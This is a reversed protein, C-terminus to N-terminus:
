NSLHPTLPPLHPHGPMSPDSLVFNQQSHILSEMLRFDPEMLIRARQRPMTLGDKGGSIGRFGSYLYFSIISAPTTISTPYLYILIYKSHFFTDITTIM